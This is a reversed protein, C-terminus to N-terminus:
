DFSITEDPLAPADEAVDALPVDRYAVLREWWADVDFGPGEIPELIVKNGVRRVRVENGPLRFAKATAGGPEPRAHLTQSHGDSTDWIIDQSFYIM